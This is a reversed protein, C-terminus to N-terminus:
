ASTRKHNRTWAAILALGVATAVLSSPEPVAVPESYLFDDLVVGENGGSGFSGNSLLPADGLTFRVRGIRKGSTAKFGLFSLGGSVNADVFASFLPSGVADFAELKTVDALEVDNFISGFADVTAPTTTGPVFFNVEFVNSGVSSFMREASFPVFDSPFGFGTSTSTPNSSDASVLFGTGATSFVAGRPSNVNFFNAPLLNPDAFADPVGDWNIERRVGGFSGNAGAVTGGGIAARFDDRVSTLGAPTASTGRFITFDARAAGAGLLVSTLALAKAAGGLVTAIGTRRM